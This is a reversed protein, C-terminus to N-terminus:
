CIYSRARNWKSKVATFQETNRKWERGELQDISQRLRPNREEGEQRVKIVAYDLDAAHEFNGGLQEHLKRKKHRFAKNPIQM